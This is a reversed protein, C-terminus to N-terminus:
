GRLSSYTKIAKEFSEGIGKVLEKANAQLEDPVKDIVADSFDETLDRQLELNLLIVPRLLLRDFDPKARIVTELTMNVQGGLKTTAQAVAITEDLSLPRSARATKTGNHIEALLITSKTIIPLTGILTKPWDAITKNLSLTANGIENIAAVITAGSALASGALALVPLISLRM